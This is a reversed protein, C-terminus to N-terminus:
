VPCDAKVLRELCPPYTELYFRGESSFSLKVLSHAIMNASRLAFSVQFNHSNILRLINMIVTGTDDLPVNGSNILDVVVKADFEFVAPLLGSDM